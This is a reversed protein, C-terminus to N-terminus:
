HVPHTHSASLTPPPPHTSSVSAIGLPALAPPLMLVHLPRFGMCVRDHLYLVLFITGDIGDADEVISSHTHNTPVTGSFITGDIGLADEVFTDNKFNEM